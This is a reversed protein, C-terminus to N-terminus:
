FYDDGYDFDRDTEDDTDYEKLNAKTLGNTGKYCARNHAAIRLKMNLILKRSGIDRSYHDIKVGPPPEILFSSLVANKYSM